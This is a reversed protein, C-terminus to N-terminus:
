QLLTVSCVIQLTQNRWPHTRAKVKTEADRVSVIVILVRWLM